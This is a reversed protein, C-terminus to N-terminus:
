RDSIIANFFEECVGDTLFEGELKLVSSWDIRRVWSQLIDCHADYVDKFYELDYSAVEGSTNRQRMREFSIEPPCDLFLHIISPDDLDIDPRAMDLYVEYEEPTFFGKKKQMYAFAHDGLLGRDIIVTYDNDALRMADRLTEKRDRAVITQFDFAYREKNSLYLQLLKKNIKEEFFMTSRGEKNLFRAFSKCLTTKGTAINAEIIIIKGKLARWYKGTTNMEM